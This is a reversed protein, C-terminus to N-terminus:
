PLHPALHFLVFAPAPQCLVTQFTSSMYPLAVSPSGPMAYHGNMSNLCRDMVRPPPLTWTRLPQPCPTQMIGLAHCPVLSPQLPPPHLHPLHQPPLFPNHPPPLPLFTYKYPAPLTAIPLTPPNFTGTWPTNTPPISSQWGRRWWPLPQLRRRWRTGVNRGCPPIVSARRGPM